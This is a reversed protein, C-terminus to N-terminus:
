VAPQVSVPDHLVNNLTKGVLEMDVEQEGNESASSNGTDRVSREKRSPLSAPSSKEIAGDTNDSSSAGAGM